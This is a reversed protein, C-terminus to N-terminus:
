HGGAIDLEAGYVETAGVTVVRVGPRPGERLRVRQGDIRDVVIQQRLYTRPEVVAYVWSAGQQDYIVAAYPVATGTATRVVPATRLAVQDAAVEDFTVRKVDLGDVEEVAAPQHVTAAVEEVEKCGTAASAVAAILFVRLVQATGAARPPTTV